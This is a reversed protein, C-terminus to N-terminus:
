KQKLSILKEATGGVIMFASVWALTNTIDAQKESIELSFAYSALVIGLFVIWGSLGAVRKSSVRSSTGILDKVFKKIM